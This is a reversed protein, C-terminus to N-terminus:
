MKLLFFCVREPFENLLRQAHGISLACLMITIGCFCFYSGYAFKPSSAVLRFDSSVTEVAVEAVAWLKM